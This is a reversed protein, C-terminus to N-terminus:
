GRTCFGSATVRVEYVFPLFYLVNEHKTVVGEVKGNPCQNALQFTLDNVYDNNFNFGLFIMRKAQVSVPKARKSSKPISSTSVSALHTCGQILFVVSLISILKKM